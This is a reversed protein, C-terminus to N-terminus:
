ADNRNEQLVTNRGANVDKARQDDRIGKGIWMYVQELNTLALSKSRGDKINNEILQELIECQKKFVSQQAASNEDYKVYDFRGM